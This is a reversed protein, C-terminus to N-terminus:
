LKLFNKVMRLAEGRVSKGRLWHIQPDRTFWTWQRKAYRRTDRKILEIARDLSIEGHHYAGMQRYSLGQMSRLERSYGLNLLREVEGVLGREIMRDVRAEIRDYLDHRGLDISLKLCRYFTQSFRHDKRFESVPKGTTRYVELARVIRVADHPHVRRATVPDVKELEKYLDALGRTSLQSRLTAGIEAPIQPSRFLGHLLARIYLGTGGVVFVVRGARHIAEVSRSAAKRYQGADFPQDPYVLDIAHHAVRKRVTVSPKDTGIDMLTYVQMSDASIIDGKLNEALELGLMSKGSATPGCIIVIPPKNVSM